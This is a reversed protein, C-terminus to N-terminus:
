VVTIIDLTNNLDGLVKEESKNQDLAYNEVEMPCPLYDLV